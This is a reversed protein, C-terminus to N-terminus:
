RSTLAGGHSTSSIRVPKVRLISGFCGPEPNQNPDGIQVRIAFGERDSTRAYLLRGAKAEHLRTLRLGHPLVM